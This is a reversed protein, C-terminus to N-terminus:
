PEEGTKIIFRFLILREGGDKDTKFVLQKGLVTPGILAMERGYESSYGDGGYGCSECGTERPDLRHLPRGLLTRAVAYRWAIRIDYLMVWLRKNGSFDDLFAMATGALSVDNIDSAYTLM